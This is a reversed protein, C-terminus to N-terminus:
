NCTPGSGRENLLLPVQPEADRELSLSFFLMLITQIVKMRKMTPIKTMYEMRL